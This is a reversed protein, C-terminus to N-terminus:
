DIPRPAVTAWRNAALADVIAPVTVGVKFRTRRVAARPAAGMAAEIEAVQADDLAVNLTRSRVLQYGLEDLTDCFLEVTLYRTRRM